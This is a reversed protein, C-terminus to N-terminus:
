PTEPAEDPAGTYAAGSIYGVAQVSRRGWNIFREARIAVSNTQFMSVVSSGTPTTSNMTPASDMQLSAESSADIVVQGDDALLIESQKVLVVVSGEATSPINTSVVVPMGFYTGGNINITPFEPQGLPNQIMSLALATNPSMILAGDQLSMNNALFQAVLAQFDRRFAEASTGSAAIPTIGNLISAPRVGEIANVAPDLFQTDLFQAMQKILDDRIIAEASPNSFRLLEQSAVVIGAAKSFGLLISDFSLASVPKAQGEGVWGVSSGGTQAPMRINFPVRRLNLNGLITAPRLLEVFEGSMNNYEVLPAAWTPDTTTGASVAAKLVNHVRDANPFRERAMALADSRSGKSLALCSVYKVFDSGKPEDSVLQISGGRSANAKEVTSGDIPKATAAMSKEQIALREIHKELSVNDAVLNDYEEGQADDLTCGAEMAADTLAKMRALNANHKERAAALQEKITMDKKGTITPNKTLALAGASKELKVVRNQKQGTAAQRVESDISKVVSMTAESNAPITVLSLELWEWDTFRWGGTPLVDYALGNFGISVARVLGAKVSQWAEDIRDRLKGAEEIKAIRARFPIGEATAEAFEVWGVPQDHKHQWLLPMPTAFKAGLPDVEDGMRDATPTTAIGEIWREGDADPADSVSKITLFSYARKM